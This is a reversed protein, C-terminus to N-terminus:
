LKWTRADVLKFTPNGNMKIDFDKIYKDIEDKSISGESYPLNDESSIYTDKIGSLFPIRDYIYLVDTMYGIGKDYQNIKEPTYSKEVEEILISYDGEDWYDDNYDKLCLMPFGGDHKKYEVDVIIYYINNNIKIKKSIKM